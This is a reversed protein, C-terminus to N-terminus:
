RSETGADSRFARRVHGGIMPGGAPRLCGGGRGSSRRKSRTDSASGSSPRRRRPLLNPAPAPVVARHSRHPPRRRREPAEHTRSHPSRDPDRDPATRLTRIRDATPPADAAAPTPLGGDPETAAGPARTASRMFAGHAPATIAGTPSSARGPPRGATVPRVTRTATFPTRMHTRTGTIDTISTGTARLPRINAAALFTVISGLAFWAALDGDSHRNHHHHRRGAEATQDFFAIDGLRAEGWGPEFSSPLRGAVFALAAAEYGTM